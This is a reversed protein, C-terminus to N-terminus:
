AGVSAPTAASTPLWMTFTSGEGEDSRATLRGGHWEVLQRASGLGIGEGLTTGVVNAGRYYRDFVFPLDVSPIGLGHDQVDIAAWHQGDQEALRMSVVVDSDSPSYKLANDLLNGLARKLRARDGDITPLDGVPLVRIRHDGAGNSAAVAEDVLALLDIQEHRLTRSEDSQRQVLDRLEDIDAILERASAEVAAANAELRSPDDHRLLQVHFVLSALPTKLDHALTRLFEDRAQLAIEAAHRASDAAAHLQVRNVAAACQGAMTLLFARDEADFARETDFGVILSGVSQGGILLPLAALANNDTRLEDWYPFQRVVAEASEIWLPQGTRVVEAGPLTADAAVRRYQREIAHSYGSRAVITLMDSGDTKLRLTGTTAGVVPLAQEMVAAGVEELTSARALAATVAQISLARESAREAMWRAHEAESRALREMDLLRQRQRHLALHAGVRALLERAAFPKVLYDDAGARLGEVRAEEGARASLLLVPLAQVLPDARIARVLELGDLGPLMVDAIVLRPPNAQISRLAALGDGVLEVAYDESLLRALYARVDANDDVVLIRPAVQEHATTPAASAESIGTTRSWAMAETVYARGVAPADAHAQAPRIHQAALHERATPISVTLETGRGPESAAAISGGHLKVLEQVLALGIGSGEQTRAKQGRIRHFREFLRPLEDEPIGVGTDRVRLVVSNGDAAARLSVVIQGTFTFKLANSLLNLVVKEWLDRDVYVVTRDPLPPCDVLLQLGAMEIASRFAGALEATLASLDLAEFAPDVRGAEIRAFDLLANTLKLLRQANREAVELLERQTPSEANRLAEELPGLLLTLPTRFEHSVDSFFITRTRDLEALVEARRQETIEQMVVMGLRSGAYSVPLIQAEFTRSRYEIEVTAENGALAPPYLPALKAAIEPPLAQAATRGKLESASLGIDTLGRGDAFQHRLTDDFLLVSAHPINSVVARYREESERLGTQAQRREQELAALCLLPLGVGFLFFQITYLNAEATEGIFPGLDDAAGAISLVTVFSLASLLGRPGFRVAAWLLAPIPLYLLGPAMDPGAASSGFVVVGVVVLVASLALAELAQGRTRPRLGDRGAHVWLVITPALILSALVDALFWGSWSPWLPHGDIARTVAGWTAGLASAAIVCGVYIGVERLRAFRPPLEIFRSLLLAGVLPEIVNAINSILTYAPPLGYWLGQAVQLAYYVGLYLWWWRRRTLLLVSLIVAQSPFLPVPLQITQTISSLAFAPGYLYIWSLLLGVTLWVVPQLISWAQERGLALDASTPQPNSRPLPETLTTTDSLM